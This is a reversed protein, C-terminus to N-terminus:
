GFLLQAWVGAAAAVFPVAFVLFAKKLQRWEAVMEDSQRASQVLGTGGSRKDGFLVVDIGAQWKELNDVRGNTKRAQALTADVTEQLHQLRDEYNM